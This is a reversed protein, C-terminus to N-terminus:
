TIESTQFQRKEQDKLANKANEAWFVVMESQSLKRM